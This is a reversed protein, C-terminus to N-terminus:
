DRGGARVARNEPRPTGRARCGARQRNADVGVPDPRHWGGRITRNGCLGGLEYALRASEYAAEARPETMRHHRLESWRNRPSMRPGRTSRTRGGDVAPSHEGHETSRASRRDNALSM